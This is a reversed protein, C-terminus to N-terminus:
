CFEKRNSEHIGQEAKSIHYDIEIAKLENVKNREMDKVEREREEAEMLKEAGLSRFWKPNNIDM